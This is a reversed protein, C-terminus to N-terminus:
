DVKTQQSNITTFIESQEDSKLAIFISIILKFNEIPNDRFGEVRHQGDIISFTNENIELEISTDSKNIIYKEETNLIISNPFTAKNTSLYKKIQKVKEGKLDRQIGIVEDDNEIRRRDVISMKLLVQPDISTVYI